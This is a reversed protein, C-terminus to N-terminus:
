LMVGAYKNNELVKQNLTRTFDKKGALIPHQHQNKQQEEGMLFYMRTIRSYLCPAKCFNGAAESLSTSIVQQAALHCETTTIKHRWRSEGSLSVGLIRM